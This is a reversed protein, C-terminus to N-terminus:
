KTTMSCILAARDMIKAVEPLNESIRLGSIATDIAKTEGGNAHDPKPDFTELQSPAGQMWLLICAKHKKKLEDARTAMVDRLSVGGVALGAATTSQLFHRRHLTNHVIQSM